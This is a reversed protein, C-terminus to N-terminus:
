SITKKNKQSKKICRKDALKVICLPALQPNIAGAKKFEDEARKIWFDVIEQTPPVSWIFECRYQNMNNETYVFYSFMYRNEM